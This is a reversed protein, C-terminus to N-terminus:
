TERRAKESILREDVPLEEAEGVEVERFAPHDPNLVYNFSYPVVVSPVRLALSQESRVWADGVQQSSSRPPRAQWNDPLEDAELAEVHEDTLTVPFFVYDYLDAYDTLGVLTELLALPLSEATYVVRTGKSNFRGGYRRAGEGTFAADAHEKKILRWLTRMAM